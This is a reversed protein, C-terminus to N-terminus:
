GIFDASETVEKVKRSDIHIIPRDLKFYVM